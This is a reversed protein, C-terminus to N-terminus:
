DKKIKQRLNSIQNELENKQKILNELDNYIEKNVDDSELYELIREFDLSLTQSVLIKYINTIYTKKVPTIACQKEILDVLRNKFEDIYNCIKKLDISNDDYIKISLYVGDDSDGGDYVVVGPPSFIINSTDNNEIECYFNSGDGEVEELYFDYESTLKKYDVGNKFPNSIIDKPLDLEDGNMCEIYGDLIQSVTWLFVGCFDSLDDNYDTKTYLTGEEEYFELNLYSMIDDVTIYAINSCTQEINKKDYKINKIGCLVEIMQKNIIDQKYLRYLINNQNSLVATQDPVYEEVVNKTIAKKKTM